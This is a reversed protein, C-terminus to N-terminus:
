KVLINISAVENSLVLGRSMSLAAFFWDASRRSNTVLNDFACVFWNSVKPRNAAPTAAVIAVLADLVREIAAAMVYTLALATYMM